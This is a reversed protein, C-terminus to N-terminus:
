IWKKTVILIVRYWFVREGQNAVLLDVIYDNNFDASLASSPSTGTKYMVQTQFTGDGNGFLVSVNKGYYNSVALDLRNDNNFYGSAISVPQNGVWFTMQTKFSGGGNDLSVIISNNEQNTANIGTPYNVQNQFSGAANGFLINITSDWNTVVLDLISDENFDGSSM